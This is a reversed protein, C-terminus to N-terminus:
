QGGSDLILQPDVLQFIGSVRWACYNYIELESSDTFYHAMESFRFGSPGLRAEFHLHANSSDGSNGVQGLPSGCSVADGPNLAAEDLMHAYVLYLSRGTGTFDTSAIAPCSLPSISLDNLPEPPLSELQRMLPLSLQELPTEVMVMYGYPFRNEVKGAVVGNLVSNIVMGEITNFGRFTWFSFDMGQHGDDKGPSPPKLPNTKIFEVDAFTFGEIPSCVPRTPVPTESPLALNPLVTPTAETLVETSEATWASESPATEMPVDQLQQCATAFSIGLVLIM